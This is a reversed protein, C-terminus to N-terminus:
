ANSVGVKYLVPVGGPSVAKVALIRGVNGLWVVEDNPTIVVGAAAPESASVLFLSSLKKVLDPAWEPPMTSGQTHLQLDMIKINFSSVESEVSGSTPDYADDLKRLVADMGFQAILPGAVNDRLDTYFTM